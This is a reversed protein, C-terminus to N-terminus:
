RAQCITTYDVHIEGVRGKLLEFETNFKAGRQLEVKATPYVKVGGKDGHVHREFYRYEAEEGVVIIADMIHQVDVANPFTCHALLSIKAGQEINVTLLIRQVGTEPFMGFCFHVPKAVVTGERLTIHADIGDDIETVDVELGPILHSGLVQNHHVVLYAVEPDNLVEADTETTKYLDDIMQTKSAGVDTM